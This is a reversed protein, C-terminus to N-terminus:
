GAARLNNKIESVETKKMTRRCAACVTEQGHATRSATSLRQLGEFIFHAHPPCGPLYLDVDIVEDIPTM